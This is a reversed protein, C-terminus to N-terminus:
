WLFSFLKQKDKILQQKIGLLNRQQIGLYTNKIGMGCKCGLGRKRGLPGLNPEVGVNTDLRVKAWGWIVGKELRQTM